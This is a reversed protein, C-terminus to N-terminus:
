KGIGYVHGITRVVILGDSIAPTAMVVEKMENKALEEYTRGARVVIVDGDENPFYLRGDAAVPSASFSGGGGVRAHYLREGSRGEYVTLVGNNGLTYLLGEYFIPTPIYTGEKDNSWAVADSSTKDKPLTIDGASGPRVAYVPRVPPYGATVYVLGEGVVPTGVTVESNPGLTWLLKGTAPDYGRIKTGNTVLEARGQSQFITPTGWTSIEDRETRWVQKGSDLDYAAIFSSKQIDTQVIVTNGYIIPSSSHGWQYEPDFFWGNDLIGIDQKWLQTGNVDWAELVGVSGFLAVVHKGDTVPTSSAQSSKPHRKVKPVGTHAVTEWVIKGTAKDLCYVKWTHESLDDLPKVDGYLGTRFTANKTMIGSMIAAGGGKSGRELLLMAAATRGNSLAMDVARAGYFTDQVNPDAGRDLLLRVVETHGNSAAFTLATVGYRAKANVEAGQALARTVRAVDGTRSAAFLEENIPSAQAPSPSAQPAPALTLVFLAAAVPFFPM